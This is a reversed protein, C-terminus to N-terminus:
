PYFLLGISTGGQLMPLVADRDNPYGASTLQSQADPFIEPEIVAFGALSPGFDLTAIAGVGVGHALLTNYRYGLVLGVEVTPKPHYVMISVDANVQASSYFDFTASRLSDRKNGLVLIPAYGGSVWLGVVDLRAGVTAGMGQFGLVPGLGLTRQAGFHPAEDASAIRTSLSAV